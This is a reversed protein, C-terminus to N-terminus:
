RAGGRKHKAQKQRNRKAHKRRQKHKKKAAKQEDVNGAGQLASTGPTPDNPPSAAPQCAEGQCETRAVESEAPIGGGERADYLDTLEDKDRLTLQDRSTFFVNKGSEDAALFNSDVPEHGASILSVCGGQRKCTGVGQPEYQYVDEVGDNTDFPSLSDRSDFYLRGSNTLYRPQPLSGAASQIVRLRSNGLPRQDSPNCSTCVLKGTASDYLFAEACPGSLFGGANDSKCLGTNDYGTLPAKSLFALWRGDRSAEANRQAPSAAWDGVGDSEPGDQPLPTAIFHSKGERWFYLNNKGAKALAGQDNPTEDLVETDIFYISSLDESQGAIGQFGGKGETLDVMPEEDGLDFLRGDSLLLKSGDASATLFKGAHDAIERTTEGSERVYVQGLESTWFVRSGDASIAHSLTAKVQEGEVKAGFAAGPATETNGPAVNVLRLQGDTWEYLNNKARGGDVAEPAFPTEATLADNAEFFLRSFDASAGAYTLFLEGAPRNPPEAELLPSLALPDATPQSYLNAYESPAEPTLAPSRQYLLGQTLEANFAQYGQMEGGSQLKPSLITTQWGTKEDRRSIYQNEVVAGESFSFPFGEYVVAEGDPSSQMPFRQTLLGPKCEESKCSGVEPQAPFVEGGRKDAPSVLEYARADPPEPAEPPFTHFAQTAGIAECAKAKDSPSCHSTAIVRYRYAAGAALGTLAASASLPSQGSGLEAGGPPAETAGQAFGGGGNHETQVTATAAGGSLDSGDASLQPVDVNEFAGTFTIEYPKSGAEDGPGGSVEVNLAGITPLDELAQRLRAASVGAPLGAHLLVNTGSATAPNSLTAEGAKISAITTNPPIGPGEIREGAALPAPGPSSIAVGAGPKITPKSLTLENGKVAKITTGAPIGEGQVGQEVEFSGVGASVSTLTPFGARIALGTAAATAPKSLTLEGANVATIKSDQPISGGEIAQGVEFSGEKTSVETLAAAGSSLNVHTLSKNAPRSITIEATPLGEEAKIAVITTDIPNGKEDLAPIGEGKIGQGVEFSGKSTSVSTIVSSGAILTGKGSAGKLTGTGVAGKLTATATATRLATAAKSGATLNAIGPGGFRRGEFGLGFVGGSASVTLAQHEDPENAQYAADDIYEFAYSTQSGRPNILAGLTATTAGMRSVSESQIAPPFEKAGAFIYGLGEYGAAYLVGAPRTAEWSISPNFALAKVERIATPRPAIPFVGVEIFKGESNCALQHGKGDSPKYNDYFVEGNEPNITMGQIGSGPLQYECVPTNPENPAFEYIAAEGAVYLNSDSDLALGVGNEYNIGEHYAAIDNAQGAYAYHEYDGAAQPKFVMVRAHQGGPESAEAFGFESVYVTGSADVAIRRATHFKEPSASIPVTSKVREGFAAIQHLGDASFVKVGLEGAGLIYVNGTIQDIAMALAEDPLATAGLLKGTPGYQILQRRSTAAYVTGADVGGAGTTNVAIGGVAEIPSKEGGAFIGVQEFSASATAAFLVGSVFLLGIATGIGAVIRHIQHSSPSPAM